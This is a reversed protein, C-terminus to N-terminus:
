SLVKNYIPLYKSFYEDMLGSMMQEIPAHDDTLVVGDKIGTGGNLVAKDVLIGSLFHTADISDLKKKLVNYSVTHDNNVGVITINQIAVPTAGFALIYNNPFVAAFTRYVSEFMEAKPGELSGIFNIAYIGNQNLSAHVDSAFEKTLLYWPVSIFSNYADGYILDYTKGPHRVAAAFKVRADGIETNIHYADVNFYERGVQAVEPDIESVSIAANPYQKRLNIPLTYAGAGIVYIDKLDKALASFLPYVDTYFYHSPKETHISHSDIDLFLIRNKGFQPLFDYDVVRLNYYATEKQFIVKSTGTDTRALAGIILAAICASVIILVTIRREFHPYSPSIDHGYFSYFAAALLLAVVHLTGASGLAPIFYFGTSFVGIISGLSWLGSLLGYKKGINHIDGVYLKFIIPFLTGIAIAPLLFLVLSVVVSQSLLSATPDVAGVVSKSLPVIVAVLCAAALFAAAAMRKGYISLYRDAVAGGIFSGASLGLLTVGIVSTWTFISSGLIPAVIRSSTLEVVMLAFGALFTAAFYPATKLSLRPMQGMM